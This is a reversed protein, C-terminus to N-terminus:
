QSKIKYEMYGCTFPLFDFKKTGTHVFGNEIYWKKLIANEEIIGLIIKTGGAEKVREKCFDLMRTGHGKHRHQPLVALNHLEYANDTEKSVAVYGILQEDEYFGYMHWGWNFHNQLREEGITFATFRPSSQETLNLDAAVTMFSKRVVEVIRPFDSKTVQKIM